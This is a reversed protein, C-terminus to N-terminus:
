FWPRRLHLRIPWVLFTWTKWRIRGNKKHSGGIVHLSLGGCNDGLVGDFAFDKLNLLAFSKQDLLHTAVLDVVWCDM